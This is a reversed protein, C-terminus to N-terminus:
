VLSEDLLFEILHILGGPMADYSRLETRVDGILRFMEDVERHALYRNQQELAASFCIIIGNYNM